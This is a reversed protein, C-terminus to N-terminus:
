RLISTLTYPRFYQSESEIKNCLGQFSFYRSVYQTNNYAKFSSVMYAMGDLGINFQDM